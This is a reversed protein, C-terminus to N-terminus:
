REGPGKRREVSKSPQGDPGFFPNRRAKGSLIAAGTRLALKALTRVPANSNMLPQKQASKANAVFGTQTRDPRPSAWHAAVSTYPPMPRPLTNAFPTNCCGAYWRRAGRRTYSLVRMRDWGRLFKLDHPLAHLYAVGGADDLAETAELDTLYHRCFTCYCAANLTRAVPFEVEVGGCRCRWLFTEM